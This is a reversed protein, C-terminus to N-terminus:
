KRRLRLFSDLGTASFRLMRGQRVMFAWLHAHRYVYAESVGLRAAAEEVKLLRDEAPQPAPQRLYRGEFVVRLEALRGLVAPIETEPISPAILGLGDLLRRAEQSPDVVPFRLTV